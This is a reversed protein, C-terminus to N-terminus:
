QPPEFERLIRDVGVGLGEAIAVLTELRTGSHVRAVAREGLGARRAVEACSLMGAEARTVDLGRRVRRTIEDRTM